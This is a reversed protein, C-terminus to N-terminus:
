SDIVGLIEAHAEVSLKVPFFIYGTFTFMQPKFYTSHVPLFECSVSSFLINYLLMTFDIQVYSIWSQLRV